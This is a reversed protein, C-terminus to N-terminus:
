KYQELHAIFKPTWWNRYGLLTPHIPDSMYRNYEAESVANMDEDNWLDIIGIGWKEKVEYLAEVMKEYLSSEYRTGTYFSVECGWTEKALAIIYEIAGVISKTNMATKSFSKIVKGLPKNQTADNTSLQVILHDVKTDKYKAVLNNEFRKVYSTDGNDVLTTGSVAEKIVTCNGQNQIFEVFSKGGSASGYTVSSGLFIFTKGDLPYVKPVNDETTVAATTTIPAETTTEAPTTTPQTTMVTEKNTTIEATTNPTTVTAESGCSVFFLSVLILCALLVLIRKM